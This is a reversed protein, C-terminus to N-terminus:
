KDERSNAIFERTEKIRYSNGNMNIVYSRYTIKDVMAATIVSDHFIENWRDFSLNTTIITSTKEARLSIFNFLLEAGEKDFSIYGMEDLVILDYKEFKKKLRQLTRENKAEKLETILNPVHAFYVHYGEMCAKIGLGIGIHSKGTGPNGALILNQKNEIFSLSRLQQFQEQAGEPLSNIDLEELTKQYPFKAARIRAKVGNQQRLALEYQLLEILFEEYSKNQIRAQELHNEINQSIYPLRLQKAYSNILQDM